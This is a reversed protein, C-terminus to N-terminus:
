SPIFVIEDGRYGLRGRVGDLAVPYGPGIEAHLERLSKRRLIHTNNCIDDVTCDYLKMRGIM